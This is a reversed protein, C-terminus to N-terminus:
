EELGLSKKTIGYDKLLQIIQPKLEHPIQITPYFSIDHHIPSVCTPQIKVYKYSNTLLHPKRKTEAYNSINSPIYFCGKQKIIRDNIGFMKQYFENTPTIMFGCDLISLITNKANDSDINYKKSILESFSDVDIEQSLQSFECGIKTYNSNETISDYYYIYLKADCELNDQCAFFLATKVDTTFDLLRTSDGYHQKKALVSFIDKNNQVIPESCDKTRAIKPVLEWDANSQGRYYTKLNSNQNREFKGNIIVKVDEITEIIYDYDIKKM